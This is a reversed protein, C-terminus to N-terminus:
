DVSIYIKSFGLLNANNLLKFLWLLTKNFIGHTEGNVNLDIGQRFKLFKLIMLVVVLEITLRKVIGGLLRVLFKFGRKVGEWDKNEKEGKVRELEQTVKRLAGTVERKLMAVDRLESRMEDYGGYTSGYLSGYQSMRPTMPPTPTPDIDKIQDWLYELESLLERADHTGSAYTKM